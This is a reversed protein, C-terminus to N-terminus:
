LHIEPIGGSYDPEAGAAAIVLSWGGVGVTNTYTDEGNFIKSKNTKM